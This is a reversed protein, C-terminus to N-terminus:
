YPVSGCLTEIAEVLDDYGVPKNLHRDFGSQRSRYQDASAGYGTLAIAPTYRLHELGRLAKILAHGDMVPMGIDSLIIDYRGNAAAELAAQPDSYAEVNASEMELLQQMVELIEKSDDVLLVKIGDLRGDSAQEPADPTAQREPACLPLSVTFTTGCGLGASYAAVTGGHAEVLQRVLSLGIGLGERSNGSLQPAAQTFLDFVSELSDETLGVGQDIVELQAQSDRRALVVRIETGAPSFKLANNLLNWIIQELRTGDAEVHVPAGDAPLVLRVTCTHQENLVVAHIGQLVACLDIVETKLKLKGTRIRAVDLLDDIIRAQSSVADCIIGVAKSAASASKVSPSRRLIEANLQILNLPHKLEHSMVAFFEDKMHSSSQSEALQKSQEDHLRKHGTLDRAIKVYGRLSSGKLRSVEGSCYFRSGDKRVHWREDQGRGHLRASRLEREPVGSAQDQETFILQYHHGLVEDKGYGFILAAGTNWDTILGQEDLLIIAFDHTSEAVLRMREEGQRLREEAARSQSIDIFTLVTGDVNRESARYPLLRALYWHQNHGVVEREITTEREVVARADDALGPYDLRHTIDLLSRGTDVPLMSFIDAARPTFWRICLNRDVFVTAIDTSAILNSLYDNVKDTEEVKTKLEYNVTLLEENISQLEEKSTELEESASRLEENIAQMEENSATLEQSSFESQEITEQLQLRTRHLERELNSLVMGETQEVAASTSASSDVEIAQFVVLLCDTGSPDDQHPQVLIQVATPHEDLSVSVSRSTVAQGSGQAQLLTSRLAPRLPAIILSLLNHSLEGGAHHLFRGVGESMHLINGETDIVLSPPTCRALARHHIEAYSLRRSSRARAPPALAPEPAQLRPPHSTTQVERARFIRNRKDVAVFLDAALDTSESSGLFLHGGPRLAFHFLRLIDRQVERDLYILLNRCVILDLQSFPPDSLLNHRAFLVKERIEKRVRLHQDEKIFFQRLRAASVDTAIADPYRGARGINIAREDLDTAFVQVQASRQEVALQETVLMALSYAEEGTSCGASWLRVEHASEESADKNVLGPMVHRQLAEFAERDRFFNTVGILMDALLARSEEPHHQLFDLYGALETQGTVHLRRELRRLVTARKYHSFDHGTEGQLTLLIEDLLPDSATPDGEREGLPPPLSDDEIEPLKVQRATRWLEVLRAPMEAVPLLLDVMGTALAARPMDPYEADDPAQVLTVGGQEKIRSLGVAGDSGTGSLVVCFAHDKHVDALDRFFLDIAVHDGRGRKAPSVRLYGDNTSLRNAPSIVYVHNREIPVPESVQRVPMRTVAQIIRDAQSQHHPSLHLVVVFAMGSDDPAHRFFRRIAELGGASAGIGVVPFDLHSPSLAPNHPSALSPKSSSKM